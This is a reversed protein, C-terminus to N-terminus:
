CRRAQYCFTAEIAQYKKSHALTALRLHHAKSLRSFYIWYIAVAHWFQQICLDGFGSDFCKITTGHTVTRRRYKILCLKISFPRWGVYRDGRRSIRSSRRWVGQQIEGVEGLTDHGIGVKLIRPPSPAHSKEGSDQSERIWAASFRFCSKSRLRAPSKASNQLFASGFRAEIDLWFM